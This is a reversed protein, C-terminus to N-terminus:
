RSRALALVKTPPAMTVSFSKWHGPNPRKDTSATSSLSPGTMIPVSMTDARAIRILSRIQPHITRTGRDARRSYPRRVSRRSGRSALASARLLSFGKLWRCGVIRPACCTRNPVRLPFHRDAGARVKPQRITSSLASAHLEEVYDIETNELYQFSLPDVYLKVGESEFEEDM